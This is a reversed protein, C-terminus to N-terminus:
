YLFGGQDGRLSLGIPTPSWCPIVSSTCRSTCFVTPPLSRVSMYVSQKVVGLISMDCNDICQFIPVNHEKGQLPPFQEM